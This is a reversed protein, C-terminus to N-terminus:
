LCVLRTQEQMRRAAGASAFGSFFQLLTAASLILAPVTRMPKTAAQQKNPRIRAPPPDCYPLTNSLRRRLYATLVREGGRQWHLVCLTCFHHFRRFYARRDPKRLRPPMGLVFRRLSLEHGHEPLATSDRPTYRSIHEFYGGKANPVTVVTCM